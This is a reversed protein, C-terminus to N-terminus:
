GERWSKGHLWFCQDVGSVLNDERCVRGGAERWGVKMQADQQRQRVDRDAWAAQMAELEEM